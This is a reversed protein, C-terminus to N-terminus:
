SVNSGFGSAGESIRPSIFAIEVRTGPMCNQSATGRSAPM